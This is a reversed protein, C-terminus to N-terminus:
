AKGGPSNRLYISQHGSNVKKYLTIALTIWVFLNSIGWQGNIPGFLKEVWEPGPCVLTYTTCLRCTDEQTTVASCPEFFKWVQRGVRKLRKLEWRMFACFELRQLAFCDNRESHCLGVCQTVCKQIVEEMKKIASLVQSANKTDAPM